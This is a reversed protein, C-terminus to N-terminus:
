NCPRQEAFFAVLRRHAAAGFERRPGFLYLEWLAARDHDWVSTDIGPRPRMRAALAPDGITDPRAPPRVPEPRPRPAQYAPHGKRRRDRVQELPPIVPAGRVAPVVLLVKGVARYLM